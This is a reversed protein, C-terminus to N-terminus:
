GVLRLAVFAVVDRTKGQPLNAVPDAPKGALADREVAEVKHITDHSVNATAALAKLTRGQDSNQDPDAPKGALMRAKARAAIV